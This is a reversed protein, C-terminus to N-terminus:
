EEYLSFGTTFVSNGKLLEEYFLLRKSMEDKLISRYYLPGATGSENTLFDAQNKVYVIWSQHLKSFLVKETDSYSACLKNYISSLEDDLQWLEIEAVAKMEWTTFANKAKEGPSNGKIKEYVDTKWKMDRIPILMGNTCSQEAYSTVCSGLIVFTLLSLIKKKM